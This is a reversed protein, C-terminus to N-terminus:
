NILLGVYQAVKKAGIDATTIELFYNVGKYSFKARYNTEYENEGKSESYFVNVDSVSLTLPLLSFYRYFDFEANQLLVVKLNIRDFGNEGIYVMDQIIYALSGSENLKACQSKVTDYSYFCIDLNNEDVFAGIDEVQTYEMVDDAYYIKEPEQNKINQHSFYVPLFVTAAILCVSCCAILSIRKTQINRRKEAPKRKSIKGIAKDVLDPNPEYEEPLNILKKWKDQEEKM